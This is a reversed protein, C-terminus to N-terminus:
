NFGTGGRGGGGGGRGGGGGFGGGGFGGGGFGGRGGGVNQMSAMMQKLDPPLSGSGGGMQAGGRHSPGSRRYWVFACIVAIVLMPMRLYELDFSEYYDNHKKYPLLSQYLVLDSGQCTATKSGFQPLSLAVLSDTTSYVTRGKALKSISMFTRYQVSAPQKNNYRSKTPQIKQSSLTHNFLLDMQMRVSTNHVLLNVSSPTTVTTILYGRVTFIDVVQQLMVKNTSVKVTRMMRCEANNKVFAPRTDFMIVDGTDFGVYLINRYLVDLAMSTVNSHLPGRCKAIVERKWFNFLVVSDSVGALILNNSQVHVCSITNNELTLRHQASVTMNMGVFHLTSKSDGLVLMNLRGRLTMVDITTYDSSGLKKKRPDGISFFPRKISADKRIILVGDAMHLEAHLRPGDPVNKPVSNSSLVNSDMSNDGNSTGQVMSNHNKIADQGQDRDQHQKERVHRGALRRGQFVVNFRIVIINNNSLTMVIEATSKGAHVAAAIVKTNSPIPFSGSDLVSGDNGSRIEISGHEGIQVVVDQAKIADSPRAKKLDKTCMTIVSLFVTTETEQIQFRPMFVEEFRVPPAPAGIAIPNSSFTQHNNASAVDLLQSIVDISNLDDRLVHEKLNQLNQIKTDILRIIDNNTSRM